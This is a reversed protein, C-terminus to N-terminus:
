GGITIMPRNKQKALNLMGAHKAKKNRVALRIIEGIEEDTCPQRLADRLSVETNGFLCVKLNGDATMRLRNCTDCFHQSMSTIFGVRGAFGPVHWTKSTENPGDVVRTLTPYKAKITDTMEKYSYFKGESWRNGDFPMYEIFRVELNKHRTMEVFDVLEYDNVGRMIVCNVKVTMQNYSLAKDIADLVRDHGKRRTIIQFKHPDMTDLSINVATLGSAVLSPLKRSLVLGNTTMGITKLGFERLTGANEIIKEIDPRVTPEGGTFRIKNVGAKVFMTSIQHIEATTLLENTPTLPVGEEPMCYQCRLNCRETLSIRLYTHYRGFTDHLITSGASAVAAATATSPTASAPLRVNNTNITDTNNIDNNMQNVRRARAVFAAIDIAPPPEVPVVRPTCSSSM